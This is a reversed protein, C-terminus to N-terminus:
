DPSEARWHARGDRIELGTGYEASLEALRELIASGVDGDAVEPYGRTEFFLEGPTGENLVVPVFAAESSTIVLRDTSGGCGVTVLVALAFGIAGGCLALPRAPRYM